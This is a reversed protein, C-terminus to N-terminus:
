EQHGLVLELLLQRDLESQLLERYVQQSLLTWPYIGAIRSAALPALSVANTPPVVATLKSM